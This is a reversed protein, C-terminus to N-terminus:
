PELLQRINLLEQCIQQRNCLNPTNHLQDIRIDILQRLRYRERVGVTPFTRGQYQRVTEHCKSGLSTQDCRGQLPHWAIQSPLFVLAAPSQPKGGATVQPFIAIFAGFLM